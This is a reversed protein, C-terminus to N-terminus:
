VAGMGITYINDPMTYECWEGNKYNHVFMKYGESTNAIWIIRNLDYVPFGATYKADSTNVIDLFRYKIKSEVGSGVPRPTEGDMLYFDDRGIWYNTGNAEVISYPAVCGIGRVDKSFTMPDTATGTRAGVKFSHTRYIILNTGVKGVGMLEEDSDLFSYIGATASTAPDFITPDGEKSYLLSFPDRLGGLWFDVLCLRNAFEICYKAKNAWTANLDAAYNAGTYYQVATNGNTFCFKDDVVAYQWRENSPVSYVKRAKYAGSTAAGAYADVLTIQTASDVTKITAWDTDPELASSHDANIIFKDGAALGSTDWNVGATGTIIKKTVDISAVTSTAYTDTKYAWTNTGTQRECLDTNNLYLTYSSGDSVKFLAISHVASTLTRYATNYGPRKVISTQEVDCNIVSPSYVQPLHLQHIETSMGHMMPRIYYFQRAM